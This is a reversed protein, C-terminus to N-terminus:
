MDFPLEAHAIPGFETTVTGGPLCWGPNRAVTMSRARPGRLAAKM